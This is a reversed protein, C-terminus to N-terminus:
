DIVLKQKDYDYGISVKNGGQYDVTANITYKSWLDNRITSSDPGSCGPPLIIVSCPGRVEGQIGSQYCLAAEKIIENEALSCDTVNIRWNPLVHSGPNHCTGTLRCIFKDASVYGKTVMAVVVMAVISAIFFIFVYNIALAFGRKTRGKKPEFKMKEGDKKIQKDLKLNM